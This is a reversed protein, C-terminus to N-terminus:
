TDMPTASRRLGAIALLGAADRPHVPLRAGPHGFQYRHGTAGGIVTLASAGTYVLAVPAVRASALDPNPRSTGRSGGGCCSM